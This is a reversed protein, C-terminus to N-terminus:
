ENGNEKFVIILVAADVACIVAWLAILYPFPNLVIKELYFAFIAGVSFLTVALIQIISAIIYQKKTTFSGMNCVGIKM